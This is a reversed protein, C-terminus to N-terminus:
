GLVLKTVDKIVIFTLNKHGKIDDVQQIEFEFYRILEQKQEGNSVSLMDFSEQFDKFTAQSSNSDVISKNIQLEDEDNLKFESSDNEM